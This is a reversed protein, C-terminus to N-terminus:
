NLIGDGVTPVDKWEGGPIRSVILGDSTNITMVQEIDDDVVKKAAQNPTEGSLSNWIENLKEQTYGGLPKM